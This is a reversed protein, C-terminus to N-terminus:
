RRFTSRPCGPLTVLGYCFGATSVLWTGKEAMTSLQEDTLYTGHEISDVGHQIAWTAGIGGHIHAAVKRNARHAEEICAAIEEETYEAMLGVSGPTSMGGSVMIKILDVQAKVQARVSQRIADVGDVENGFFWGHGGTRAIFNGSHATPGQM